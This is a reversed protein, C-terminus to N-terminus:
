TYFVFENYSDVATSYMEKEEAEKAKTLLTYCTSSKEQKQNLVSSEGSLTAAAKYKKEAELYKGEEFYMDGEKEYNQAFLIVPFLFLLITLLKTKM